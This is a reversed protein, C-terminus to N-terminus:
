SCDSVGFRYICVTNAHMGKGELIRISWLITSSGSLTSQKMPQGPARLRAFLTSTRVLTRLFSLVLAERRDPRKQAAYM